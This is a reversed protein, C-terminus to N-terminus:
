LGAPIEVLERLVPGDVNIADIQARTLMSRVLYPGTLVNDEDGVIDNEKCMTERAFGASTAGDDGLFYLYARDSMVWVLWPWLHDDDCLRLLRGRFAADLKEFPVGDARETLAEPREGRLCTGSEIATAGEIAPMPDELLVDVRNSDARQDDYRVCGLVRARFRLPETGSVRTLWVPMGHRLEEDGM